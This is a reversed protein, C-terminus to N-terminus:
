VKESIKNITPSSPIDPVLIPNAIYWLGKRHFTNIEHVPHGPAFDWRIFGTGTNSGQHTFRTAEQDQMIHDPSLVTGTAQPVHLVRCELVANTNTVIKMIGTGIATIAANNEADGEFTMIPMPDIKKYHWLYRRQNTANCNAGTDGQLDMPLLQINNHHYRVSDVPITQTTTVKPQIYPFVTYSPISDLKPKPPRPIFQPPEPSKELEASVRSIPLATQSKM